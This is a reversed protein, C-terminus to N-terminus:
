VTKFILVPPHLHNFLGDEGALVLWNELDQFQEGRSTGKPAQLSFLARKSFGQTKLVPL